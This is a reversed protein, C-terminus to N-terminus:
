LGTKKLILFVIFLGAIGIVADGVLHMLWATPPDGPNSGGARGIFALTMARGCLLPTLILIVKQKM